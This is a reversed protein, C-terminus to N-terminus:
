DIDVTTLPPPRFIFDLQQTRSDVVSIMGTFDGLNGWSTGMVLNLVTSGIVPVGDFAAGKYLYPVPYIYYICVGGQDTGIIILYPLMGVQLMSPNNTAPNYCFPFAQDIQQTVFSYLM